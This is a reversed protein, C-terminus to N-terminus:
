GAYLRWHDVEDARVPRGTRISERACELAVMTPWVSRAGIICGGGVTHGRVAASVAEWEQTFGDGPQEGFPRQEGDVILERDTLFLSGTTGVTWQDSTWSSVGRSITVTVFGGQELTISVSIETPGREDSPSLRAARAYVEIPRDNSIWLAADIEHSGNGFLLGGTMAETQGWGSQPPRQERSNYRRRITHVPRGIEGAVVAERAMRHAHRCRLVQGVALVLGAAEAAEIMAACDALRLAMPKEVLVHKGAGLATLAVEAHLHHPLLIGVAEIDPDCLAHSPDPTYACGATKGLRTARGEDVDAVLSLEAMPTMQLAPVHSSEAVAGCGILAVSLPRAPRIEAKARQQVTAQM